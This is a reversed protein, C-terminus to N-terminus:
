ERLEIIKNGAYGGSNHLLFSRKRGAVELVFSCWSNGLYSYETADKPLKRRLCRSDIEEEEKRYAEALKRQKEKSEPDVGFLRQFFGANKTEM